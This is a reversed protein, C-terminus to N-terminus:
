FVYERGNGSNYLETIEASSLVKKWVGVADIRGDWFFESAFSAGMVFTSTGDNAGGTHSATDVTGNNVSIGMTNSTANYTVVIFYWTATSPAGFTTAELSTSASGDASLLFRFNDENTRYMFRYARQNGTVNWKELIIRNAGVADLYIWAAISFDIDGMSLDANDSIDLFESNAATFQAANGIKGVAQTVTNNDTLDNSGVVDVRTGSVEGLKWFAVIGENLTSGAGLIYPNASQANLEFALFLFLLLYKKM